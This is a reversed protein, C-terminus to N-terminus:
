GFLEFQVRIIFRKNFVLFLYVTMSQWARVATDLDNSRIRAVDCGSGALLFWITWAQEAERLRRMWWLVYAAIGNSRYPLVICSAGIQSPVVLLSGVAAWVISADILTINDKYSWVTRILARRILSVVDLALHNGHAALLHSLRTRMGTVIRIGLMSGPTVFLKQLVLLHERSFACDSILICCGHHILSHWVVASVVDVFISLLYRKVIQRLAVSISSTHTSRMRSVGWLVLRMNIILESVRILTWVVFITELMLLRGFNTAVVCSYFLDFQTTVMVTSRAAVSATTLINSDHEHTIIAGLNSATAVCLWELCVDDVLIPHLKNAPCRQRLGGLVVNWFEVRVASM